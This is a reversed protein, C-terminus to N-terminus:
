SFSIRGALGGVYIPFGVVKCRMRNTSREVALSQLWGITHPAVAIPPTVQLIQAAERGM